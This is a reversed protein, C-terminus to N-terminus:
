TIDDFMSLVDNGVGHTQVKDVFTDFNLFEVVIRKTMLNYDVALVRAITEVKNIMEHGELAAEL